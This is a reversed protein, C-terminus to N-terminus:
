ADYTGDSKNELVAALDAWESRAWDAIKKERADIEVLTWDENNLVERVMRLNHREYIAKKAQFGSRQAESNLSQPLLILNGIRNVHRWQEELLGDARRMKGHWPGNLEQSQPFIHELSDTARRQWIENRVHEDVTANRGTQRALHEEYRWLVYRCVEAAEYCDAGELGEKVAADVPYDRGLENLHSMIQRYSPASGKGRTVNVALRTYDGVKTRADKGYLGFIRFTVREWQNLVAKRESESLATTSELAVALIRAQLIRTVPALFRKKDLRVLKQTVELVREAIQRPKDPGNCEVRLLELAEEASYPRSQVEGYHLTATVRLIEQGPVNVDSIERYINGWIGQLTNITAAAAEESAALEFARGMMISKCKDLWDVVLGRSNLVEFISYVVKRDETDYIVFGLRNQVLRLLSMINGQEQQWRDVFKACEKIAAQLNRDAHTRIDVQSPERGDRLFANFIHENANNTQLLILNGDRKVVLRALDRREESGEELALEISKLTLVLTTLRQQGDVIDYLRYETDGVTKIENTRHCVLTAMFHHNDDGREALKFLDSFLDERQRSQWSYFRQYHPVRFVRDAFLKKLTAYTPEVM